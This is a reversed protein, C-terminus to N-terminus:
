VIVFTDNNTPAETMATVTFQGIGGAAVYDTIDTAQAALNGSTFIVIRGNYHDATAETIDDAQFVTTTPTHTNTVTDVTAKIVQGASAALNAPWGAPQSAVALFVGDAGTITDLDAQATDLKGDHTSLASTTALASVDAKSATRSAADTTVTGSVAVTTAQFNSYSSLTITAAAGGHAGNGLYVKDSAATFTSTGRSSVTADLNQLLKGTTSGTDHNGALVRDLIADRCAAAIAVVSLDGTAMDDAILDAIAQMVAEGDLDNIIAAEITAALTTRESSTLAMANGAQAATKAADYASSLTVSGDSLSAALALASVDAKYDAPTSLARDAAAWVNAATHTSFGAATSWTSDGHTELLGLATAVVGAADPVTTNFGSATAWTSDGHTELTGLATAVVGAADPVTTNAGSTGVMADGVTIAPTAHDFFHQFGDAVQTGTQSLLHALVYTLDARAVHTTPDYGNDAFDKLDTMSQSVSGLLAMDVAPFGNVSTNVAHGLWQTVDATLVDSGSVLSDYVNGPVVQFTKPTMANTGDNLLFTVEGLTDFDGGDTDVIYHGTASHAMTDQADPAGSVGNKVVELVDTATKAATVAVGDSDLIPGVLFKLAASQDAFM